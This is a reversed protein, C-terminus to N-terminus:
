AGLRQLVRSAHRTMYKSGGVPHSLVCAALDNGPQTVITMFLCDRTTSPLIVKRAPGMCVLQATPPLLGDSVACLRGVGCSSPAARNPYPRVRLACSKGHGRDHRAASATINTRVTVPLSSSTSM